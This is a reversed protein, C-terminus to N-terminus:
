NTVVTAELRDIEKSVLKRIEIVADSVHLWGLANIIIRLTRLDSTDIYEQETM